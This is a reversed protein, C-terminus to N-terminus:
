KKKGFPDGSEWPVGLFSKCNIDNVYTVPDHREFVNGTLGYDIVRVKSSGILGDIMSHNLAITPYGIGGCIPIVPNLVPNYIRSQQLYEEENTQHLKQYIAQLVRVLDIKVKEASPDKFSSVQAELDKTTLSSDVPKVFDEHRIM